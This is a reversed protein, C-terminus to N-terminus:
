SEDTVEGINLEKKVKDWSFVRGERWAIISRKVGEICANAEDESMGMGLLVEMPRNNKDM